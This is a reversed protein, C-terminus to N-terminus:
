PAARMPADQMRDRTQPLVHAPGELVGAGSIGNTGPFDGRALYLPERCRTAEVGRLPRERVGDCANWVLVAQLGSTLVSPDSGSNGAFVSNDHALAKGEMHFQIAPLRTAREPLIDLLGTGAMEAVSCIVGARLEEAAVRKKVQKVLTDPEAGAPAHYRLKFKNRKHEQRLHLLEIDASLARPDNHRRGGRDRAIGDCRDDRARSDGGDIEYLPTGAPIDTTM